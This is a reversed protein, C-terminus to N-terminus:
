ARLGGGLAAWPVLSTASPGARVKECKKPDGPIERFAQPGWARQKGIPFCLIQAVLLAGGKPCKQVSPACKACKKRM